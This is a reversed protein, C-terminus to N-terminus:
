LSSHLIFFLSHSNTEAIPAMLSAPCVCRFNQSNNSVLLTSGSIQTLEGAFVAASPRRVGLREACASARVERWRRPTRGDEPAMAARMQKGFFVGDFNLHTQGASSAVQTSLAQRFFPHRPRSARGPERYIPVSRFPSVCRKLRVTRTPLFCRAWETRDRYMPLRFLRTAQAVGSLIKLCARLTEENKM